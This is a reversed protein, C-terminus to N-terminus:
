NSNKMKEEDGFVKGEIEKFDYGTPFHEEFLMM